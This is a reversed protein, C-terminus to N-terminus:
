DEIEEDVFELFSRTVTRGAKIDEIGRHYSAMAEPNQYLWAEHAPITVVPTLLIQGNENESIQYTKEKVEAGFTLRGRQDAKVMKKTVVFNSTLTEM